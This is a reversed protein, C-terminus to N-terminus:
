VADKVEEPKDNGIFSARLKEDLSKLRLVTEANLYTNNVKIEWGYNGKQGRTLKIYEETKIDVKTEFM